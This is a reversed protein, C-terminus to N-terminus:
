IKSISVEAIQDGLRESGPVAAPILACGVPVRDDLFVRARVAEGDGNQRVQVEDDASLGDARAQDPNLYVGFAGGPVPTRQLAPARRVLADLAYIPVPGVRV